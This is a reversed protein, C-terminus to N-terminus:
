EAHDEHLMASLASCATKSATKGTQDYPKALPQNNCSCKKELLEQMEKDAEDFWDQHKKTSFSVVEATTEQLITKM